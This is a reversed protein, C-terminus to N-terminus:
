CDYAAMMWCARKQAGSEIHVLVPKRYTIGAAVCWDVPLRVRASGVDRDQGRTARLCDIQQKVLMHEQLTHPHSTSGFTPAPAFM